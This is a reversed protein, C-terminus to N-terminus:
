SITEFFNSFEPYHRKLNRIENMLQDDSLSLDALMGIIWYGDLNENDAFWNAIKSIIQLRTEIKM